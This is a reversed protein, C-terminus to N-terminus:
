TREQQKKYNEYDERKVLLCLKGMGFDAQITQHNALQDKLWEIRSEIPFEENMEQFLERRYSPLKPNPIQQYCHQETPAGPMLPAM